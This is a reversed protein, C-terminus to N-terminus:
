YFELKIGLKKLYTKFQLSFLNTHVYYTKNKLAGLRKKSLFKEKVRGPFDTTNYGCHIYYDSDENKLKKNSNSTYTVIFKEEEFEKPFALVYEIKDIKLKRAPIKLDFIADVRKWMEKIKDTRDQKKRYEALDNESAYLKPYNQPNCMIYRLMMLQGIGRQLQHNSLTSKLEYIRLTKGKLTSIDANIGFEWCIYHPQTGNPAFIITEGRKRLVKEVFGKFIIEKM